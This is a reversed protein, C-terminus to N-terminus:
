VRACVCVRVCARVRERMRERVRERVRERERVFACLRVCVCDCAHVGLCPVRACVAVCARMQEYQQPGQLSHCARRSGEEAQITIPLPHHRDGM